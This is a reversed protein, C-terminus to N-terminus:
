RGHSPDPSAALNLDVFIGKLASDRVYCAGEPAYTKACSLTTAKRRPSQAYQWVEAAPTGSSSLPPPHLTCGNSPPCADQYVWLVVPNLHRTAVQTAIDQATTISKGRGESVPQGSGYVGARFGAAAVTETWAFLYDAQEPLM